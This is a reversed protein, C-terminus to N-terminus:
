TRRTNKEQEGLMGFVKSKYSSNRATSTKHVSHCTEKENYKKQYEEASGKDRKPPTAGRHSAMKNFHRPAWTQNEFMM